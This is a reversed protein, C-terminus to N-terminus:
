PRARVQGQKPDQQKTAMTMVPEHLNGIKAM